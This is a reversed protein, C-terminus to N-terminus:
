QIENDGQPSRLLRWLRYVQKDSASGGEARLLAAIRRYGAQPHAQSIRRIAEMLLGDKAHRQSTYRQTCRAQSLVACARRESVALKEQVHRVTKRRQVPSLVEGVAEKLIANDLSLAAIARRLRANEGELEKLLGLQSPSLQGFKKQWLYYTASGIGVERCVQEVTGGAAARTDVEALIKGIEDPTHRKGM